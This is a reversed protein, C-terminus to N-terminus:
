LNERRSREEKREEKKSKNRRKEEKRRGTGGGEWRERKRMCGKERREKIWGREEMKGREKDRRVENEM